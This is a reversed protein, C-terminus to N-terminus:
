CDAFKEGIALVCVALEKVRLDALVALGALKFEITVEVVELRRTIRLKLPNRRQRLISKRYIKCNIM